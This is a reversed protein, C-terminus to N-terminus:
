GSLASSRTQIAVDVFNRIGPMASRSKLWVVHEVVEEDSEAVRVMRYRPDPRVDNELAFGIGLGYVVAECTDYRSDMHIHHKPEVDCGTFAKDVLYQTYANSRSYILPYDALQQVSVTPLNALEHNHPVVATLCHSHYSLRSIGKEEKAAPYLGIDVEREHLMERCENTTGSTINLTADPYHQYFAAFLPMFILPSATAVRVVPQSAAGPQALAKISLELDPYQRTIKYLAQGTATLRVGNNVREFLASDFRAELKRIQVTIAPQSVGLDAAARTYNGCKVTANFAKIESMSLDM